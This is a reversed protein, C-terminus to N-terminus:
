MKNAHERLKDAVKTRQEPTLVPALAEYFRVMRSVGWTAMSTHAAAATSLTNADFTDAAFAAGFAKMHAEAEAPNFTGHAQAHATLSSEFSAKVKAVQDNTLAFEKAVHAIHGGEEHEKAAAKEDGNSEKWVLWHAEVKDVLAARQEPRLVAHLENLENATAGHTQAAATGVAAVAGDIKATDISGAAVGDALALLVAKQADRVPQTKAHLEAKIKDVQAQQEPTIGITEIALLVFHAFGGHHHRHHAKLDQSDETDEETASNSALQGQEGGATPTQPQAQSDGCGITGAGLALWMALAVGGSWGMRNMGAEMNSPRM